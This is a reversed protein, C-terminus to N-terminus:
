IGNRNRAPVSIPNRKNRSLVDVVLPTMVLCITDNVLFASLIGSLAVVAVLLTVPHRARSVIASSAFGLCGSVKLSAVVIMVCLLLTITDLDIARYADALPLVGVAVM